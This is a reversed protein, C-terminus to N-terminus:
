LDEVELIKQFLEGQSPSGPSHTSWWSQGALQPAWSPPEKNKWSPTMAAEGCGVREHTQLGQLKRWSRVVHQSLTGETGSARKVKTGM